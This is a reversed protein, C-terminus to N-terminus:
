DASAGGDLREARDRIRIAAEAVEDYVSALLGVLPFKGNMPSPGLRRLLAHAVHQPPPAHELEALQPGCRWFDDMSAELPPPQVGPINALWAPVDEALAGGAAQAARVQRLKDLVHDAPMGYLDFLLSPADSLRDAILFGAAAAHKCPKSEACSCEVSLADARPPLLEIAMSRFLEDLGTPMEGALLKAAYMAESSMAAVLQNWQSETLAGLRLRTIYPRAARGQVRAEIAGGKSIHLELTQGSRAYAVGETRADQPVAAEMLKLWRVAIWNDARPGEKSQLRLGGRVRRPMAPRQAARAHGSQGPVFSM